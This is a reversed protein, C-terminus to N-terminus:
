YADYDGDYRPYLHMADKLEIYPFRDFAVCETPNLNYLRVLQKFSIFHIDGDNKSKLEGPHLIYKIM